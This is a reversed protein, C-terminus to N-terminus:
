ALIYKTPNDPCEHIGCEIFTSAVNTFIAIIFIIFAAHTLFRIKKNKALKVKDPHKNIEYQDPYSMVIAIYIVAVMSIIFVWTYMHLGFVTSGYGVPDTVHLAIQRVSIFATLVAALLSLAYHSPRVSYRINLLFGFGIALLGLRQLLCLPCPIEGMVFQFYFASVIIVTIGLVEITNLLKILDNKFYKKM